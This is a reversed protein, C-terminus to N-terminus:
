PTQKRTRLENILNGAAEEPTQVSKIAREFAQSGVASCTAMGAHSRDPCYLEYELEVLAKWFVLESLQLRTDTAVSLQVSRSADTVAQSLPNTLAEDARWPKSLSWKALGIASGGISVLAGILAARLTKSRLTATVAAEVSGREAM